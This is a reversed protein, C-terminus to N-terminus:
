VSCSWGSIILGSGLLDSFTHEPKKKPWEDYKLIVLGAEPSPLGTSHCSQVRLNGVSLVQGRQMGAYKMRSFSKPM